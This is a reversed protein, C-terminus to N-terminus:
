RGIERLHLLNAAENLTMAFRNLFSMGLLKYGGLRDDPVFAVGVDRASVQGVEVKDLVGAYGQMRGNATQFPRRELENERFGLPEMLSQPLVILSAGTDLMLRVSVRHPNPGILAADVFLNGGVRTTPVAATTPRSRPAQKPGSVVVTDIAGDDGLVVTFNYDSLLTQLREAPPGSADPVPEGSIRAAGRLTFGADEALREVQGRLDSAASDASAGAVPLALLLFCTLLLAYRSRM